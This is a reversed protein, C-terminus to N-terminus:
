PIGIGLAAFVFILLGVLIILWAIWRFNEPINTPGIIKTFLRVVFLFVAAILAFTLLWGLLISGGPRFFPQLAALLLPTAM